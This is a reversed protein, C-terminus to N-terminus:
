LYLCLYILPWKNILIFYKQLIPFYKWWVCIEGNIFYRVGVYPREYICSVISWPSQVIVTQLHGEDRGGQYVKQSRLCPQLPLRDLSRFSTEFSYCHSLVVIPENLNNLLSSRLKEPKSLRKEGPLKGCYLQLM